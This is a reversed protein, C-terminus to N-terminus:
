KIRFARDQDIIKVSPVTVNGVILRKVGDLEKVVGAKKLGTWDLKAPQPKLFSLLPNDYDAITSIYDLIVEENREYKPQQKVFSLTGNVLKISKINTNGIERQAFDRLKQELSTLIEEKRVCNKQLFLDATKQAEKVYDEAQQKMSIIELQLKKYYWLTREAEAKTSLANVDIASQQEEGEEEAIAKEIFDYISEAM